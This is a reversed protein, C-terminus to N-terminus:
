TISAFILFTSYHSVLSLVTLTLKFFYYIGDDRPRLDREVKGNQENLIEGGKM